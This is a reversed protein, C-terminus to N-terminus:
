LARAECFWRTLSTADTKWSFTGKLKGNVLISAQEHVKEHVTHAISYYNKEGDDTKYEDDEVKVKHIVATVDEGKQSAAEKKVEEEHGEEEASSEDIAEEWGSHAEM